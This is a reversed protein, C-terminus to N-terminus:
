INSVEISSVNGYFQSNEQIISDLMGAAKSDEGELRNLYEIIEDLKAIEEALEAAKTADRKEYTVVLNGNADKKEVRVDENYYDYQEQKARREDEYDPIKRSDIPEGIPSECTYSLFTSNAAKINNALISCLEAAKNFAYQYVELNNLLLNYVEGKLKENARTNTIYDAIQKSVNKADSAKQELDQCYKNTIYIDESYVFM